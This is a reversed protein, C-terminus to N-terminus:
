DAPRPAVEPEYVIRAGKFQQRVAQWLTGVNQNSLYKEPLEIRKAPLEYWPVGPFAHHTAHENFNMLLWSFFWHRPLSRVNYRVEPGISTDYHFIYVLLSWIWAFVLMPLALSVLWFTFGGLLYFLTHFALGLLFQGWSILRDRGRWHRFAPSIRTAAATPLFLFIVIAGLSHWFYGSGFIGLYWLAQYWVRRIGSVPKRSVFTDLASTHADRRNFGHHFQHIKRYVQLPVMLPLLMLMGCLENFRRNNPFLKGHTTEHGVIYIRDLWLGQAILVPFYLAWKWATELHWVFNAAAVLAAFVLVTEILLYSNFKINKTLNVNFNASM